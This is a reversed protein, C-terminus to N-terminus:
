YLMQRKYVDLHTYSVPRETQPLTDMNYRFYDDELVAHKGEMPYYAFGGPLFVGQASSYMVTSYGRYTVRIVDLATQGPNEM